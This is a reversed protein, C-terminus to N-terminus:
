DCDEDDGQDNQGHHNDPRRHKNDVTVRQRVEASVNGEFDRASARLVLPGEPFQRTDLSVRCTAQHCEGIPTSGAWVQVLAVGSVDDRAKVSVQEIGRVNDGSDPDVFRLTPAVGDPAYLGRGSAAKYSAGPTIPTLRVIATNSADATVSVPSASRIQAVGQVTLTGSINLVDGATATIVATITRNDLPLSLSDTLMLPTGGAAATATVYTALSAPIGVTEAGVSTLHSDLQLQLLFQGSSTVTLQDTWQQIEQGYGYTNNSDISALTDTTADCQVRGTLHGLAASGRIRAGVTTTVLSDLVTYDDLAYTMGFPSANALAVPLPATTVQQMQSDNRVNVPSTGALNAKLVRSGSSSLKFTCTAPATPSTPCAATGGCVEATECPGAPTHCITGVAAFGDTPCNTNTGDCREAVDCPGALPRCLTGSLAVANAPCAISAGDCTEAVDCTDIAGRCTQGAPAVGDAPCTAHTGDCVEVVDCADAAARCTHSTGLMTCVGNASAGNAAACTQCVGGDCASNCCFGDACHNSACVADASCASGDPLLPPPPPGGSLVITEFTAGGPWSDQFGACPAATAFIAIVGLKDGPTLSFDHADDASNIQGLYEVTYTGVGDWVPNTHTVAGILDTTGGDFSDDSSWHAIGNPNYADVTLGDGGRVAWHNDGTEVIGDGDNDFYLNLFDNGPTGGAPPTGFRWRANEVVMAMILNKEDNKVYLKAPNGGDCFSFSTVAADDWEGPSLTGDISVHNTNTGSMILASNRVTVDDTPRASCAGIAFSAALCAAVALRNRTPSATM